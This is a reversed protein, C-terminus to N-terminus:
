ESASLDTGAQIFITQTYFIVANIGCFQQLLMLIMVIAFPKWYVAVTLMNKLSIHGIAKERVLSEKMVELEKSTDYHKGRLWQLSKQAQEDRGKSLLYSPSDPVYFMVLILLVLPFSNM